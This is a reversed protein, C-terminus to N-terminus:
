PKGINKDLFKEVRSWFDIRNKPLYWGHGEEPYEIWEVQRNTPKVADYFKRGHFIPVRRDAGGYALLLPQTIRAAQQIPSTAKLQAADAVQDGILKPMGYKKWEDSFDSQALWTDDYMLNIDTVGVWSVGCKYLDPDNVLGMLTSYGGYSAGAICIRKPDAYGQAIAWRAGDAIDNQMALGWQKWSALVHAKGYGTTGRFAPELVAYGRSALFQTEPDWRWTAGRVWPGGHVLIVLPLNKKAGAGPPLTLLGPIDLGDRAKYRVPAQRGMQEPKINPYAAGVPNLKGTRTNFLTFRSPLVDSYSEVLVWPSDPQAPVSIMNATGTLAKDVAQQVAQMAPDFWVHGEADTSLRLGLLKSRNAILSGTFDYGTTVVLAEKSVKGSAFDFTRLSRTNEGGNAVVYLTGDAGFGLPEFGDKGGTYRDFRALARWTGSAPDAYHITTTNGAHGIALRPEGKHDLIWEHVPGPRRVPQARGTLTNLRLLNVTEVQGGADYVESQVYIFESDQAGRQDLLFTHWPLAEKRLRTGGEIVFDEGRRNALQLSNSGDRNVAFLGPGYMVDGQAEGKHTVNYVLREDNVWQFRNIDADNYSAVVKATNADLDIVVLVDRSGKISSRAALYRASPSLVAAGFAPNQFFSEIAPRAPAPQAQASPGGVLAAFALCLLYACPPRM